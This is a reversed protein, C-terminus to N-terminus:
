ANWIGIGPPRHTPIEPVSALLTKTYPHSPADFLTDADSLEVIKGEKMVAVRDAVHRVVGMDHSIFLYTLGLQQQFGDLLNLLDAQVSMDLASVPEDLVLFSPEVALARAIGIRQRQGGSFAKPRRAAADSELGVKELLEAVREKRQGLALGHIVLPEALISGVSLKPDLSGYPDQFVMQAQRRFAKLGSRSLATVDAGDFHVTGADPELLRLILRGTTSKGSGSEGVLSLTEGKRISFSVGDVAAIRRGDARFTKKLDKVTLLDTM